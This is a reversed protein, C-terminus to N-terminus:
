ELTLREGVRLVRYPQGLREAEAVFLDPSATNFTFMEYHCPVVLGAGIAHALRAAEPGDLNGAVGRAPVRGNIPLLALHVQHPRLKEALGQYLLTDGSHYIRWPGFEIVYGLYKHHGDTDTQLEEHASAVGTFRVGAMEATAGEDMGVIQERSLGTRERAVARAAEPVVMLLSPNTAVLPGLTGPDLHDTHAHSSTVIDVFGLREPAVPIRTMRDHPKDSDAYKSTLSDSLYSDLLVHKGRHQLLFGSQGLWWVHLAEPQSKAAEIDALLSDDSLIPEIM